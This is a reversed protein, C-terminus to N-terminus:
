EKIRGKYLYNLSIGLSIFIYVSFLKRQHKMGDIFPVIMAFFHCLGRTTTKKEAISAVNIGAHAM